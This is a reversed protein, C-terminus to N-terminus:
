EEVIMQPSSHGEAFDDNRFCFVGYTYTGPSCDKRIYLMSDHDAPISHLQVNQGDSLELIEKYPMFLTIDTNVASFRLSDGRKVEIKGPVIYSIGNKSEIKLDHITDRM